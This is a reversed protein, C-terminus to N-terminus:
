SFEGKQCFKFGKQELGTTESINRSTFSQQLTQLRSPGTQHPQLHLHHPAELRPCLLLLFLPLTGVELWPRPGDWTIDANRSSALVQEFV